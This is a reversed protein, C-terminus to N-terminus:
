AIGKANVSFHIQKIFEWIGCVILFKVSSTRTLSPAVERVCITEVKGLASVVPRDCIQQMM